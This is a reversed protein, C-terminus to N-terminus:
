LQVPIYKWHVFWKPLLDHIQVIRWRAALTDHSATFKIDDSEGQGLYTIDYVAILTNTNDALFSIHLCANSNHIVGNLCM